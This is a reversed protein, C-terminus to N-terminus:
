AAPEVCQEHWLGPMAELSYLVDGGHDYSVGVVRGEKGACALQGPHLPNHYRWEKMFAELAASDKVRVKSGKPLQERYQPTAASREAFTAPSRRRDATREV